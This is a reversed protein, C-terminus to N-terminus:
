GSCRCPTLGAGAPILRLPDRLHPRGQLSGRALPSSGPRTMARKKVGSHAGRWRPHAQAHPRPRTAHPTLGAGAPILRRRDRGSRRTTPSGRALPSSGPGFRHRGSGRDHAGRWRPHAGGPPWGSWGPSTLGAGAPILGDDCVGVSGVVRSGRALPSSGKDAAINFLVPTHAGRWRPHAWPSAAPAPPWCTLGAGAPILRGPRRRRRRGPRSGRALPSSGAM